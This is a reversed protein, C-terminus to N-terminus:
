KFRTQIEQRFKSRCFDMVGKDYTTYTKERLDMADVAELVESLTLEIVKLALGYEIAKSDYITYEKFCEAKAKDAIDMIKQTIM